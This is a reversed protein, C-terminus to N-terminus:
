LAFVHQVLTHSDEVVRNGGQDLLFLIFVAGGVARKDNIAAATGGVQGGAAEPDCVAPYGVLDVNGGGVFIAVGVKAAIVQREPDHLKQLQGQGALQAAVIERVCVLQDPGKINVHEARHVPLSHVADVRLQVPGVGLRLSHDGGPEPVVLVPAPRVVVRDLVVEVEQELRRLPDLGAEVAVGVYQTHGHGADRDLLGRRLTHQHVSPLQGREM